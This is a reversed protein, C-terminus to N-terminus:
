GTTAAATDAYLRASTLRGAAIEFLWLNHFVRMKGTAKPVATNTLQVTFHDDGGLVQDVRSEFSEWVESGGPVGAFFSGFAEPGVFEGGYPLSTPVDLVFDDRLMPLIMERDHHAFLETLAYAMEARTYASRAAYADRAAELAEAALVDSGIVGDAFSFSEPSTLTIMVFVDAPDIGPGEHLLRVLTKYFRRKAREGRDIGDTIKFVTWDGTRPGGRFSRSFVMENPDCQRILQFDDDPKMNLEAVLADHVARSVAELYGASKGRALSIEVFPMPSGRKMSEPSDLLDKLDM